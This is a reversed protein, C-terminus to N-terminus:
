RPPRPHEVFDLIRDEALFQPRGSPDHKIHFGPVGNAHAAVVEARTEGQYLGVKGESRSIARADKFLKPAPKLERDWLPLLVHDFVSWDFAPQDGWNDALFDKLAQLKSAYNGPQGMSEPINIIAGISYGARVLGNVYDRAGPLYRMPGEAPDSVLVRGLDLWIHVREAGPSVEASGTPAPGAVRATTTPAIPM